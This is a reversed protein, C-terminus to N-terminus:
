PRYVSSEVTISFFQQDIFLEEPLFLARKRVPFVASVVFVAASIIQCQPLPRRPTSPFTLPDRRIMPRNGSSTLGTRGRPLSLSHFSLDFCGCLPPIFSPDRAAASDTRNLTFTAVRHGLEIVFHRRAVVSVPSPRPFRFLVFGENM